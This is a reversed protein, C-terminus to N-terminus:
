WLGAQSLAERGGSSEARLVSRDHGGGKYRFGLQLGEMCRSLRNSGQRDSHSASKCRTKRSLTTPFIQHWRAQRASVAGTSQGHHSHQPMSMRMRAQANSRSIELNSGRVPHNSM